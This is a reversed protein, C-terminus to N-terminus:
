LKIRDCYTTDCLLSSNELHFELLQWCVTMKSETSIRLPIVPNFFYVIAPSMFVIQMESEHGGFIVQPLLM